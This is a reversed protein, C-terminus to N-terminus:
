GLWSLDAITALILIHQLAESVTWQTQFWNLAAQVAILYLAWLAPQASAELLRSPLLHGRAARRLVALGVHGVIMAVALALGVAISVAVLPRGSLELVIRNWNM